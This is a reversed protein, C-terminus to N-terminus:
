LLLRHGRRSPPRGRCLPRWAFLSAGRSHCLPVLARLSSACSARRSSPRSVTPSSPAASAQAALGSSRRGRGCLDSNPLHHDIIYAGNPDASLLESWAGMARARDGRADDGGGRSRNRRDRVRDRVGGDGGRNRRTRGSANRTCRDGRRRRCRPICSPPRAALRASRPPSRVDCPSSWQERASYSSSARRFHPGPPCPGRSGFANVDAACRAAPRGEHDFHASRILRFALGRLLRRIVSLGALEIRIAALDDGCVESQHSAIM